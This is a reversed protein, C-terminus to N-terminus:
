KKWMMELEKNRLQGVISARYDHSSVADIFTSCYFIRV